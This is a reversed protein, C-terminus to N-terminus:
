PPRLCAAATTVVSAGIGKGDAKKIGFPGPEVLQGQHRYLGPGFSVQSQAAVALPGPRL